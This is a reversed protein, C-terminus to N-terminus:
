KKLLDSRAFIYSSSLATNYVLLLIFLFCSCVTTIYCGILVAAICVVMMNVGEFSSKISWGYRQGARCYFWNSMSTTYSALMELWKSRGEREKNWHNERILYFVEICDRVSSKIKWLIKRRSLLKEREWKLIDAFYKESDLVCIDRWIKVPSSCIVIYVEINKLGAMFRLCYTNLGILCLLTNIKLM